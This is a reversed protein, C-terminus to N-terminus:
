AEGEEAGPPPVMLDVLGPAVATYAGEWMSVHLLELLTGQPLTVYCTSLPALAAAVEDDDRAQELAALRDRDSDSALRLQAGDAALQRYAVPLDMCWAGIHTLGGNEGFLSPHGIPGSGGIPEILEILMSDSLRGLAIRMDVPATEGARADFTYLRTPAPLRHWLDAGFASYEEIGEELDAVHTGLHQIPGPLSRNM